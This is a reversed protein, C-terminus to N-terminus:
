LKNLIDMGIFYRNNETVFYYQNQSGCWIDKINLFGHVLLKYDAWQKSVSKYSITHSHAVQFIWFIETEWFNWYFINFMYDHINLKVEEEDNDFKVKSTLYYFFFDYM